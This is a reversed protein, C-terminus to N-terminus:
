NRRDRGNILDFLTRIKEEHLEIKGWMKGLILIFIIFGTFVQWYENLVHILSLEAV